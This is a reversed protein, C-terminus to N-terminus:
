SDNNIGEKIRQTSCLPLFFLDQKPPSPATCLYLENRARGTSELWTCSRIGQIYSFWNWSIPIDADSWGIVWIQRTMALGINHLWKSECARQNQLYAMIQFSSQFHGGTFRHHRWYDQSSSNGPQGGSLHWIISIITVVTYLKEWKETQKSRYQM